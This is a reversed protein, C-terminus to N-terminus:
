SSAIIQFITSEADRDGFCENAWAREKSHFINEKGKKRKKKSIAFRPSLLAISFPPKGPEAATLGKFRTEYISGGALVKWSPSCAFM